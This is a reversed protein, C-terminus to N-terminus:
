KGKLIKKIFERRKTGIPLLFDRFTYYKQILKYARSSYIESLEVEKEMLKSKCEELTLSANNSYIHNSISQYQKYLKHDYESLINLTKKTDYGYDRMRKIIQIIKEGKNDGPKSYLNLKNILGYTYHFTRRIYFKNYQELVNEKELFEKTLEYIKFTDDIHKQTISKSISGDRQLWNYFAKEVVSINNAYYFLKYTTPVDEHYLGIPYKINHKIFLERSYIKDCAMPSAMGSLLRKFLEQQTFGETIGSSYKVTGDNYVQNFRCIVIDSKEEQAKDYMKELMDEKIYDDSDIFSLFEGKANEVGTNRAGSLGQNEQTIMKIRNDKNSYKELINHSKDTSGDDIVIIEIEKLTQNIISDLCKGLYKEVNYVPIIVSVKISSM